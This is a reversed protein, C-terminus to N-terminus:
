YNKKDRAHYVKLTDLSENFEDRKKKEAEDITMDRYYFDRFLEKFMKYNGFDYTVKNGGTTKM